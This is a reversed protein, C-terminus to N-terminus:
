YIWDSDIPHPQVSTVDITYFGGQGGKLLSHTTITGTIFVQKGAFQAVKDAPELLIYRQIFDANILIYKGGKEAVSKRITDGPVSLNAKLVNLDFRDGRNSNSGTGISKLTATDTIFGYWVNHIVYTNNLSSKARRGNDQGGLLSFGGAILLLVLTAVMRKSMANDGRPHM